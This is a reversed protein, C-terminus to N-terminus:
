QGLSNFNQGDDVCPPANKGKDHPVCVTVEGTCYGGSGDDAQFTVRYVRGNGTGSREARLLVSSGQIAADPATDGDGLGNLPEDQTVGLITITVVSNEPDTVGLVSVEIMKHNPPWLTAVSPRALECAPPSNTDQVTIKVDDTTSGGNGDTV